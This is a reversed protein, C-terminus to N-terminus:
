SNKIFQKWFEVGYINYAHCGFPLQQNIENYANEPYREFAFRLAEKWDPKKYDKCIISAEIGWFVDENYIHGDMNMYKELLPKSANELVEIFTATKRLSLGGNGVNNRRLFRIRKKHSIAFKLYRALFRYIKTNIKSGPKYWPAGIYDYDRNCWYELEPKFLYADTQHILIYKYDKFRQYFETSLMLRNYGSIGEFFHKDFYETPLTSLTGFSDNPSFSEPAIFVQPFYPTMKVAQELSQLEAPLLKRYVPFIVICQKM